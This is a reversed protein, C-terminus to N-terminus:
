GGHHAVLGEQVPLSVMRRTTVGWRAGVAGLIGTVLQGWGWSKAPGSVGAYWGNTGRTEGAKVRDGSHVCFIYEQGLAKAGSNRNRLNKRPM